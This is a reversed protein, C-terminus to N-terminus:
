AVEKGEVQRALRDRTRRQLAELASTIHFLADENDQSAFPGAQFGQLRHAALGLLAELTVGNNGHQPIPGNQFLVSLVLQASGEYESANTETNFGSIDYRHNAGGSGPEDGVTITLNSAAGPVEHATIVKGKAFQAPDYEQGSFVSLVLSSEAEPYKPLGENIQEGEKVHEYGAPPTNTVDAAPVEIPRRNPNLRYAQLTYGIVEYEIGTDPKAIVGSAVVEAHGLATNVMGAVVLELKQATGAAEHGVQLSDTTYNLELRRWTQASEAFNTGPQRTDDAVLIHRDITRTGDPHKGEIWISELAMAPNISDTMDLVGTELLAQTQSIGLLDFTEGIKLAATLVREGDVEVEWAPIKEADVFFRKSEDRYVPVIRVGDATRPYQIVKANM